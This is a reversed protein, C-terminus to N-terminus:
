NCKWLRWHATVIAQKGSFFTYGCYGLQAKPTQNLKENFQHELVHLM